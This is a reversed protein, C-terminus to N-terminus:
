SVDRRILGRTGAIAAVATYALYVLSGTGASLLVLGTSGGGGLAGSGALAAAAGGPSWKAAGATMSTLLAEVLFFWMIATIVAAVQNRLLAGLAVGLVSAMAAYVLARAGIGTLEGATLTVDVDRRTLSMALLGWCLASAAATMVVGALAHVIMKAAVLRGRRPVALLTPSLTKHRTEGTMGVIGLILAFTGATAGSTALGYQYDHEALAPGDASVALLVNLATLGLGLAVFGWPMVTTTLKRAEGRVTDIM